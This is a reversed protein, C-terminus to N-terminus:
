EPREFEITREVRAVEVTYQAYWRSCGEEQAELHEIDDRWATIDEESRWYCVTIGLGDDGRASQMGLFGERADVLGAMRDAMEEYGDLDETMKTTFITAFYPAEGVLGLETPRHEDDM